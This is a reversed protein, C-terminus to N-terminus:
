QVKGTNLDVRYTSPGTGDRYRTCTVTYTDLYLHEISTIRACLQGNLNILAAVAEAKAMLAQARHGAPPPAPKLLNAALSAVTLAAVLVAAKGYGPLARWRQRAGGAAAPPRATRSELYLAAAQPSDFHMTGVSWQNGAQRIRPDM